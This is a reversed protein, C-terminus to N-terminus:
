KFDQFHSFNVVEFFEEGNSNRKFTNYKKENGACSVDGTGGRM